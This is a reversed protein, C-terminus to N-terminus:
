SETERRKRAENEVDTDSKRRLNVRSDDKLDRLKRSPGTLVKDGPALGGVIQYFQTNAIGTTVTREEVKGERAVMVVARSEPGFLGKKLAEELTGDRELVAQLPVRITRDAKATLIVGRVSMGPRLMQADRSSPDLAVKVNYMNANQGTEEATSAIEYVQGVFVRGPLSEVNVQVNQGTRLRVVESENVKLEANIENMDSIVMLTAGPLNSMGPIAMEGIQAILATVRGSIPAAIVTKDLGDRIAAVNAENQAVNAKASAYTLDASEEALRAQRYDEDAVLGQKFLSEIREASQTARMKAVELRTADTRAADLIAQSQILQQRVRVQDITVLPQGARVNEGDKVHIAKIEGTSNTGINIRTKAQIEGSAQITERLDGRSVTDWTFTEEENGDSAFVLGLSLMAACAVIIGLQIKTKRKM